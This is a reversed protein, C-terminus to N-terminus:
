IVLIGLPLTGGVIGGQPGIPVYQGIIFDKSSRCCAVARWMTMMDAYQLVASAALDAADPPTRGDGVDFCRVIGMEIELGVGVSCNGPNVSPQGITVSPYATALRVWAQGCTDDCDGMYDLAVDEGPMVGCACVPPGSELIEACLCTALDAMTQEIQNPLVIPHTATM